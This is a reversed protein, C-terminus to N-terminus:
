PAHPKALEDLKAPEDPLTKEEAPVASIANKVPPSQVPTSSDAAGAPVFEGAIIKMAILPEMKLLAALDYRPGTIAQNLSACAVSLEFQGLSQDIHEKLQLARILDQWQVTVAQPGFYYGALDHVLQEIAAAQQDHWALFSAQIAVSQEPLEVCAAALLSVGHALGFLRQRLLIKPQDFAYGTRGPLAKLPEPAAVSSPSPADARLAASPVDPTQAQGQEYTALAPVERPHAIVRAKPAFEPESEPGATSREQACLVAPLLWAVVLWRKM